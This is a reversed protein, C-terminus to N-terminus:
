SVPPPDCSVPTDTIASIEQVEDGADDLVLLTGDREFPFWCHQRGTLEDDYSFCVLPGDVTVTGYACTGDSRAWVTRDRRLFQEVGVLNDTGMIVFTATRGAVRDLFADATIQEQAAVPAAALLLILAARIM